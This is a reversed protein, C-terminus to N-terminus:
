EDIKEKLTLLLDEWVTIDMREILKADDYDVTQLHETIDNIMTDINAASLHSIYKKILSATYGTVVSHRSLSYRLSMQLLNVLEHTSIDVRM